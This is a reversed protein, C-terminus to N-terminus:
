IRIHGLYPYGAANRSAISMVHVTTASREYTSIAYGDGISIAV